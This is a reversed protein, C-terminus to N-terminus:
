INELFDFASLVEHANFELLSFYEALLENPIARKNNEWNQVSQRTVNLIQAVDEQTLRKNERKQKILEYLKM